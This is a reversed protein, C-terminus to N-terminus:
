LLVREGRQPGLLYQPSITSSMPLRVITPKLVLLTNSSQTDRTNESLLQNLGPIQSLGILGSRTVNHSSIDLGALLAWEGERISVNGKFESENIAPITSPTEAGLSKSDAEIDLAIEGEGNIRPTVKLVIGLDELNVQGIPNYISGAGQQAGQYLSQPIPYKDGIHLTATQRDGVVITADYLSRSVSESYMAFLSASTIGVGFLTSGGGFAMFAANPISSPLLSKFSGIRGFDVLSFATPLSLGYHFSRTSNFALFQVELSLQGKPLLVAEFLVRAAQARTYRDRILVTRTASDWGINRLNLVGRVATAAEVLDKQDVTNPLPFTILINPELEARKAETDRVFFMVHKSVPFVFTHTVATLAEMATRFDAGDIQFRVNQQPELQPDWIGRVGYASAVQELLTKEDARIDFDHTSASAEIHPLPQLNEDSEWERRSAMEIPPQETLRSGEAAKVDESIDATQIQAQTLLKAAPALADRNSRYSSNHPDRALAEGYLLYARVFQGSDEAEHASRAIQAAVPDSAAECTAVMALIVCAILPLKLCTRREWGNHRAPSSSRQTCRPCRSKTALRWMARRTLPAKV